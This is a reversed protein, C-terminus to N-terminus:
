LRVKRPKEVADSSQLKSLHFARLFNDEKKERLLFINHLDLSPQYRNTVNRACPHKGRRNSVESTFV